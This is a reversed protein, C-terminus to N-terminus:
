LFAVIARGIEDRTVVNITRHYYAIEVLFRAKCAQWAHIWVTEVTKSFDTLNKMVSTNLQLAEDSSFSNALNDQRFSESVWSLPSQSTLISFIEWQSMGGSGGFAQAKPARKPFRDSIDIRSGRKSRTKTRTESYLLKLLSTESYHTEFPLSDKVRKFHRSPVLSTNKRTKERLSVIQAFFFPWIRAWLYCFRWM